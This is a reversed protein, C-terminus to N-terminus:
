RILYWLNESDGIAIPKENLSNDMMRSFQTFIQSYSLSLSKSSPEDLMIQLISILVTTSTLDKINFSSGLDFEKFLGIISANGALKDLIKFPDCLPSAVIHLWCIIVLVLLRMDRRM